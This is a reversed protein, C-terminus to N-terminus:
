NKLYLTEILDLMTQLEFRVRERLESLTTNGSVDAEFSYDTALAIYIKDNVFSLSMPFKLKEAALTIGAMVQPTLIRFAATQNEASVFFIKNFSDLEARIGIDTPLWGQSKRHIIFVPDNSIADFDFIMLRGHFITKYISSDESKYEHQLFIDSQVFPKNKYSASLYDDGMYTNFAAFLRSERIVSIDLKDNPRFDVNDLLSELSKKVIQEKFAKDYLVSAKAAPSALKFLVIIAAISYILTAMSGAYAYIVFGLILGVILYATLLFNGTQSKIRAKDLELLEASGTAASEKLSKANKIGSSMGGVIIGILATIGLMIIFLTGFAFTFIIIALVVGFIGLGALMSLSEFLARIVLLNVAVFAMRLWKMWSYPSEFGLIRRILRM